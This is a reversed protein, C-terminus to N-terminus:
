EVSFGVIHQSITDCMDGEDQIPHFLPLLKGVRISAQCLFRRGINLLLIHRIDIYFVTLLSYLWNVELRAYSIGHFLIHTSIM